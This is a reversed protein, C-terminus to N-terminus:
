ALGYLVRFARAPRYMGLRGRRRYGESLKSAWCRLELLELGSVIDWLRKAKAFSRVTQAVGYFVLA